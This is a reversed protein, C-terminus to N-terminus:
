NTGLVYALAAATNTEWYIPTKGDAGIGTFVAPDKCSGGNYTGYTIDDMGPFPQHNYLLRNSLQHAIEHAANNGIGEGIESIIANTPVPVKLQLALQVGLMNSPYYIRSIHFGYPSTDGCATFTVISTSQSVGFNAGTITVSTGIGGSSPSVTNIIPPLSILVGASPVGQVTVVVPGTTAGLPVPAVIKTKAWSTASGPVGSFMVTSTGQPSGFNTGTITVSTGLTGSAPSLGTISPTPLVTFEVGNSDVGSAHVIVNGSTANVPVPVSISSDSWSMPTAVKGNFKVTSTGQEAGFGSGAITTLTGAAGTSPAINGTTAGAPVPAVIKGNAWSSPTGVVGNFTLTSSGQTAGFNTGTLTVSGGIAASMPSLNNISPIPLVTFSVSNSAVESANVVVNGTTAGTPVPVVISSDSWSTPSGVKTNFKVTGSGQTAGFGSGTIAVPTGVPAATPSLSAINPAPAVTFPVGASVVGSVTVVVNGSSAGVPIPVVIKANAWSTPTATTGNFTVTSTGQTTGFNTGTVMVAAGIAGSTPTVSSISPVPLVTFIVGNSSVGSANVVVNGTSAGSPAPVVIASDSWSLPIGAKTGFKITSTGQTAGFGSGAVTVSTGIPAANPSLNTINPAPVVTFNVGSSPVGSVTVVVNGSTAGTPVPVVIKTNAWSTATGAVGNFTITSSGQTTGFSTGAVTISAGIAGASPSFNTINPSAAFAPERTFLTLALAFLVFGYRRTFEM